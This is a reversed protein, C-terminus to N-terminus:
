QQIEHEALVKGYGRRQEKPSVFLIEAKDKGLRMFAAIRGSENACCFTRGGFFYRNRILPKFYEMDEEKLFHSFSCM